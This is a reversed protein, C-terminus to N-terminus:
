KTPTPRLRYTHAIRWRNNTDRVPADVRIRECFGVGAHATLDGDSPTHLAGLVAQSTRQLENLDWPSSRIGVTFELMPMDHSDTSTNYPGIITIAHDPSDDWGAFFAAPLTEEGERPDAQDGAPDSCVGRSHLDTLMTVAFTSYDPPFIM